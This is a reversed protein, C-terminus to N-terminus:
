WPVGCCADHFTPALAREKAYGVSGEAPYAIGNLGADIAMRDIVGKAPGLPRACGLVIPTAPLRQRARQFFAGMDEPPPLKVGEMPTGSLPTLVVLVLLKPPHRAIIDLSADEGLMKGYHLGLIIHPISPVQYEELWALSQEYDAPTLDLHYVQRITDPHGIIDMMAGDIGVQGLAKATAQDPVGPHVRILLGLENKVRALEDMHALLPVRGQKDSGGSILVGQAGEDKAKQCAQFLGGPGKPLPAMGKLKETGCHDCALACGGGTLSVTVFRHASQQAYESTKFRRFGPAYFSIEDPFNERRLAMLNEPPNM